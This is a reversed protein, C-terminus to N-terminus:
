AEAQRSAAAPQLRGWVASVRGVLSEHFVDVADQDTGSHDAKGHRALRRPGSALDDDDFGRTRDAGHRARAVALHHM